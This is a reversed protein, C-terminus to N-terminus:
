LSAERQKGEEEEDESRSLSINWKREIKVNLKQGIVLECRAEATTSPVVLNCGLPAFVQSTELITLLEKKGRVIELQM